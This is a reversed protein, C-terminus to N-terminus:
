RFKIIRDTRHDSFSANRATQSDKRPVCSFFFFCNFILEERICLLSKNKQKCLGRSKKRTSVSFAIFVAYTGLRACATSQRSFENFKERGTKPSKRSKEATAHSTRPHSCKAFFFSTTQAFGFIYREHLQSQLKADFYPSTSDGACSHSCARNKVARKCRSSKM